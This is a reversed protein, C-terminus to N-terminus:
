YKDEANQQQQQQECRSGKSYFKKAALNTRQRLLSAHKEKWGNEGFSFIKIM